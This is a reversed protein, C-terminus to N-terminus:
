KNINNSSYVYIGWNENAKIINYTIINNNSSDPLYIGFWNYAIYNGSIVNNSSNSLDVGNNKTINNGQIKNKSSNDLIVSYANNEIVSNETITNNHSNGLRIAHMNNKMYNWIIKCNWSYNIYIGNEFSKIIMNRITVNNRESLCIGNMTELGQLIYGAGDVIINDREVM